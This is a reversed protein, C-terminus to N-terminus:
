YNVVYLEFNYEEPLTIPFLKYDIYVEKLNKCYKLLEFNNTNSDHIILTELNECYILLEIYEEYCYEFEVNEKQIYSLDSYTLIKDEEIEFAKYFNLKAEESTFDIEKSLDSRGSYEEIIKAIFSDNIKISDQAEEIDQSVNENLGPLYEDFWGKNVGYLGVIIAIVLSIAFGLLLIWLINTKSKIITRDYGSGDGIYKNDLKDILEKDKILCNSDIKNHTCSDLSIEIIEKNLNLASVVENECNPSALSNKSVFIIVGTCSQLHDAINKPWESGPAIGEDYWVRYKKNFLENIFPLVKESDKHSYSVFLFPKNGEYAKVFEAM